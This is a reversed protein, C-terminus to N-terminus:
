MKMQRYQENLKKLIKLKNKGDDEVYEQNESILDPLFQTNKNMLFSPQNKENCSFCSLNLTSFQQSPHDQSSIMKMEQNFTDLATSNDLLNMIKLKNQELIRTIAQEHSNSLNMQQEEAIQKQFEYQEVSIKSLNAHPDDAVFLMFQFTSNLVKDRKVKKNIRGQKKYVQYIAKITSANHGTIM